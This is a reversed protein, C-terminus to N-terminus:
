KLAGGLLGAVYYRQRVIYIVVGPVGHGAGRDAVTGVMHGVDQQQWVPPMVSVRM